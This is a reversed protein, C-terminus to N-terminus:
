AKLSKKKTSIGFIAYIPCFSVFSTLVFIVALSVLVLGLTGTIVQNLYLLAIIAAIVVRLIRDVSNLNKKM